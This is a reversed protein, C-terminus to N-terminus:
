TAMAGAAALDGELHEARAIVAVSEPHASGDKDLLPADIIHRLTLAMATARMLRGRDEESYSQYDDERAVLGELWSVSPVFLAGLRVLLDNLRRARYAVVKMVERLTALEATAAKVKAADTRAKEVENQGKANLAVGTVLLLPSAVIGGLMVTGGAVGFGGSALTGGGLWALTANTSAVGSLSGIATGTSAAAFSGVAGFAIMGAAAGAGSAIAGTKMADIAGFDVRRIEGLDLKAGAINPPSEHWESLDVSKIRQFAEVFRRLDTDYLRFKTEGLDNLRTSTLERQRETTEQAKAYDEAADSRIEKSERLRSVGDFGKKVGAAGTAILMPVAVLVPFPM